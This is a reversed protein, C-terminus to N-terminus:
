KEGILEPIQELEKILQPIDNVITDYLIGFDIEDYAHILRNRMGIMDRWGINPFKERTGISLKTVAEGIIEIEKILALALIEDTKIDNRTKGKTFRIIDQAAKLIHHLRILDSKM